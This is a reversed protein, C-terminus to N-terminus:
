QGYRMINFKRTSVSQNINIVIWLELLSGHLSYNTTSALTKCYPFGTIYYIHKCYYWSTIKM